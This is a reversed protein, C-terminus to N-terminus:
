LRIMESQPDSPDIPLSMEKPPLPDSYCGKDVHKLMNEIEQKTGRRVGPVETLIYPLYGENSDHKVSALEEDNKVLQEWSEM